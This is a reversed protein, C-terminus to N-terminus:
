DLAAAVAAKFTGFRRRITDRFSGPGGGGVLPEDAADRRVVGHLRHL